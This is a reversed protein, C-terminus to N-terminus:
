PETERRAGARLEVEGKTLGVLSALAEWHRPHPVRKGSRIKSAASTSMGTEKAITTLTVVALAPQIEALFWAPDFACRDHKREWELEANRIAANKALRRAASAPSTSNRSAPTLQIAVGIERRREPTCEACYQARTGQRDVEWTLLVGCM